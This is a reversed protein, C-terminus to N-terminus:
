FLNLTVLRSLFQYCGTRTRSLSEALKELQAEIVTTTYQSIRPKFCVEDSTPLCAMGCTVNLRLRQFRRKIQSLANFHEVARLQLRRYNLQKLLETLLSLLQDIELETRITANVWTQDQNRCAPSYEEAIGFLTDTM